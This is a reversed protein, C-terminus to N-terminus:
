IYEVDLRNAFRILEVKLIYGLDSQCKDGPGCDLGGEERAQITKIAEKDMKRHSSKDGDM